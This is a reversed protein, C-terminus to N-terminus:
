SDGRTPPSDELLSALQAADGSVFVKPGGLIARMPSKSLSKRDESLAPDFYLVQVPRGLRDEISHLREAVVSYGATGIVFLDVDSNERETGKAVSGFIFAVAIQQELGGLAERIISPIGSTKTIFAKLETFVASEKRARLFRQNGERQEEVLGAGILIKLERSVAGDGSKVRRVLENFTIRRDPNLFMERLVASRTKGLLIADLM